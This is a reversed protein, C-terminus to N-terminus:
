KDSPKVVEPPMELGIVEYDGGWQRGSVPPKREDGLWEKSYIICVRWPTRRPWNVEFESSKGIDIHPSGPGSPYDNHVTEWGAHIKALGSVEPATGASPVEVRVNWPLISRNESNTLRFVAVRRSNSDNSDVRWRSFAITVRNSAPHNTFGVYLDGGAHVSYRDEKLDVSHGGDPARAGRTTDAAHSNCMCGFLVALLSTRTIRQM